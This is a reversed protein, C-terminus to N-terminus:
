LAAKANRRRARVVLGLVSSGAFAAFAYEGPEPVIGPALVNTINGNQLGTEQDTGGGVFARRVTGVNYLSELVFSGLFVSQAPPGPIGSITPAGTYTFTYNMIAGDDNPNIFGTTTAVPGSTFSGSLAYTSPATYFGTFGAFDYITFFDGTRVEQDATVFVNYTYLFTGTGSATVVPSGTGPVINAHAATGNLGFLAVGLTVAALGIVKNFKIRM